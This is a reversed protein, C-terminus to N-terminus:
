LNYKGHNSSLSELTIYSVNHHKECLQELAGGLTLNSM